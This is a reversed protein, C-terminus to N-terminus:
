FVKIHDWHFFTLTEMCVCTDCIVNFDQVYFSFLCMNRNLTKFMIQMYIFCMNNWSVWGSLTNLSSTSIHRALTTDIQIKNSICVFYLSFWLFLDHHTQQRHTHKVYYLYHLHSSLHPHVSSNNNEHVIQIHWNITNVTSWKTQPSSICLNNNNNKTHRQEHKIHKFYLHPFHSVVPTLVHPHSTNKFKQTFNQIKSLLEVYKMLDVRWRNKSFSM